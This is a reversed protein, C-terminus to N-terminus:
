VAGSVDFRRRMVRVPWLRLLTGPLSWVSAMARVGAVTRFMTGAAVVFVRSM